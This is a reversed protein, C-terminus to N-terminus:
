EEVGRLLDSNIRHLLVSQQIWQLETQQQIRAYKVIQGFPTEFSHLSLKNNM